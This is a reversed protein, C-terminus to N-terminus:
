GVQAISLLYGTGYWGVALAALSALALVVYIRKCEKDFGDM